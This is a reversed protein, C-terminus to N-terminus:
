GKIKAIADVALQKIEPNNDKAYRELEPLAAKAKPGMAGLQRIANPIANRNIHVKSKLEEIFPKPDEAVVPAVDPSKEIPQAGGCGSLAVAFMPAVWRNTRTTSTFWLNSRSKKFLPM